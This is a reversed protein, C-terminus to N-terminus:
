VVQLSSRSSKRVPMHLSAIEGCTKVATCLLLIALFSRLIVHDKSQYRAWYRAGQALSIGWLLISFIASFFFAVSPLFTLPGGHFARPEFEGPEELLVPHAGAPVASM